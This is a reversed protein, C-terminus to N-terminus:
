FDLMCFIENFFFLFFSFFPSLGADAEHFLHPGRGTM